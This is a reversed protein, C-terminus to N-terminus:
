YLSDISIQRNRVDKNEQKYRILYPTNNYIGYIQPSPNTWTIENPIDYGGTSGVILLDGPSVDNSGLVQKAFIDNEFCNSGYIDYRLSPEILDKVFEVPHYRKLLSHTLNTGADVVLISTNNRSKYVKVSTVLFGFDEVLSRGPEIILKIRSIDFNNEILFRSIDRAFEYPKIPIVGKYSSKASFGGGIDLYIESKLEKFLSTIEYSFKNIAQIYKESSNNNSGVHFHIGSINIGNNRFLAKVESFESITLGFRSFKDSECETSLRPIVIPKNDYLKALQVLNHAEEISDIMINVGFKLAVELDNNTKIPGNFFIKNGGFGDEIAMELELLSVVEASSNNKRFLKTISKLSNTKYSYAISINPFYGEWDRLMSEFSNQIGDLDIIYFPTTTDKYLESSIYKIKDPITNVVNEGFKRFNV